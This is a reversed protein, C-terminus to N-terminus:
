LGGTHSPRGRSTTTICRRRNRRRKSFGTSATAKSTGCTRGAWHQQAERAWASAAARTERSDAEREHQSRLDHQSCFVADGASRGQQRRERSDTVADSAMALWSQQQLVEALAFSATKVRSEWSVRLRVASAAGKHTSVTVAVASSGAPERCGPLVETPRINGLGAMETMSHRQSTYVGATFRTQQLPDGRVDRPGCISTDCTKRM